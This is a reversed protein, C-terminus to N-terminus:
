PQTAEPGSPGTVTVEPDNVGVLEYGGPVAATVGCAEDDDALEKIEYVYWDGSTDWEDTAGFTPVDVLDDHRIAGFIRGAAADSPAEIDVTVEDETKVKRRATIRFRAV